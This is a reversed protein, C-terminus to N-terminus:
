PESSEVASLTRRLWQAIEHLQADCQAFRAVTGPSATTNHNMDHAHMHTVKIGAASLKKAYAMGEDRLVDYESTTILTPPLNPFHKTRLPSIKPDAPNIQQAYQSWFWRMTNAELGLGIANEFYSVYPTNPDANPHDTVPCLLMVAKLNSAGTEACLLNAAVAALNGGASDGGVCLRSADAGFAAGHLTAWRVADLADNLAAPYPSEPALRYDVSLMMVGSAHAFLRCFPDLTEVSGAVWGGGHLYVMLSRKSSQSEPIYLRASLDPRIQIREAQVSNPLGNIHERNKLATMMMERIGAIRQADSQITLVPPRQQELLQRLAPALPTRVNLVSNTPPPLPM